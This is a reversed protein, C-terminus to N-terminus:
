FIFGLVGKSVMAYVMGLYGFLSNVRCTSGEQSTSACAWYSARDYLINLFSSIQNSLILSCSKSYPFYIIVVATM